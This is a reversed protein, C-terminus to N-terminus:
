HGWGAPTEYVPKGDWPTATGHAMVLYQEGSRYSGKRTKIRKCLVPADVLFADKVGVVTDREGVPQSGIRRIWASHASTKTVQYFDINTQDYGWSYYLIDGRKM